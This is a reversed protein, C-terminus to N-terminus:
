HRLPNRFEFAVASAFIKYALIEKFPFLFDPVYIM